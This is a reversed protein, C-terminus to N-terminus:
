EFVMVVQFMLWLLGCLEEFWDICVVFVDFIWILKEVWWMDFDDDCLFM